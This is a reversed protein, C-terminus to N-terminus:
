THGQSNSIIISTFVSGEGTFNYSKHNSEDIDINTLLLLTDSSLGHHHTRVNKVYFKNLFLPKDALSVVTYWM